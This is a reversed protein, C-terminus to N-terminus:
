PRFGLFYRLPCYGFPHNTIIILNNSLISIVWLLIYTDKQDFQLSESVFGRKSKQGRSPDLNGMLFAGGAMAPFIERTPHLVAAAGSSSYRIEQNYPVATQRENRICITESLGEFHDM